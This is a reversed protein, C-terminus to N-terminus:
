KYLRNTLKEGKYVAIFEDTMRDLLFKEEITKRANQGMRSREEPNHYLYLLKKELMERDKNKILFGNRGDELVENTGGGETAVVPKKLSMYEILSNSVGEGHVDANTSLVGVDFVQMVDEIDSRKGPFFINAKAEEPVMAEIQVSTSGTGIMLFCMDPFQKVLNIAAQTFTEYDKRPHFASAMGAVFGFKEIGLEKRIEQVDRLNKFRNMDIGNYICYTKEIPAKYSRIGALCNALIVDSFLFSLKNRLFNKDFWLNHEPADAICSNIFRFKRFPLIPLMYTSSMSGWSHVIDPNYKKIAGKIIRYPSLSFKSGRNSEIITVPFDYMYPYGVGKDMLSVLIIKYSPDKSLSKVLELMRREKGGLGINDAVFLITMKRNRKTTIPEAAHLGAELSVIAMNTKRPYNIVEFCNQLPIM